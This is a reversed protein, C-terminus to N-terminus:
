SDESHIHWFCFELWSPVKVNWFDLRADACSVTIGYLRDRGKEDQRVAKRQTEEVDLSDRLTPLIVVWVTLTIGQREEFRLSICFYGVCWM